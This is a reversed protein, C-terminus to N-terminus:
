SMSESCRFGFRVKQTTEKGLGVSSFRCWGYQVNTLEEMIGPKKRLTRVCLTDEAKVVKKGRMEVESLLRSTRFRQSM